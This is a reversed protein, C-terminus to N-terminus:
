GSGPDIRPVRHRRALPVGDCSGGHWPIWEEITYTGVLELTLLKDARQGLIGCLSGGIGGVLSGYLAGFTNENFWPESM